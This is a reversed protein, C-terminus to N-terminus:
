DTHFDGSFLQFSKPYRLMVLIKCSKALVERVFIINYKLIIRPEIKIKKQKINMIM